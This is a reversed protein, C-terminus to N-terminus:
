FRPQRIAISVLLGNLGSSASYALPIQDDIIVDHWEGMNYFQFRYIGGEKATDSGNVAPKIVRTALANREAVASLASLFWCDGTAGQM